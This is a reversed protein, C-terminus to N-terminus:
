FEIDDEAATSSGKTQTDPGDELAEFEEEADVPKVGFAEGDRVFQVARLNSNVRKGFQNDQVWLTITANVYCGAYPAQKEGEVVPVRNRNVVAPRTKNSSALVKMGAYGDYDHDDGNKVCTKIGKPITDGFKEKLLRNMETKLSALITAHEKNAPDLLFSAEFRADQGPQFSKPTFLRPFSLRVNTLKIPNSTSAM